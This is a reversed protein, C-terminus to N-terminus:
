VDEGTKREVKEARASPGPDKKGATRDRGGFPRSTRKKEHDEGGEQRDYQRELAETLTCSEWNGVSCCFRQTYEAFTTRDRFAICGGECHFQRREDWRFFPCAWVKGSYGTSM